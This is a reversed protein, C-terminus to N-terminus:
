EKEGTAFEEERFNIKSETMLGALPKMLEKDFIRDNLGRDSTNSDILIPNWCKRTASSFSDCM